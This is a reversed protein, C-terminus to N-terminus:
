GACRPRSVAGPDPEVLLRIFCHALVREAVPKLPEGSCFALRRAYGVHHNYRQSRIRAGRRIM